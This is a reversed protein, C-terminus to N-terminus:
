RKFGIKKSIEVTFGGLETLRTTVMNIIKIEEKEIPSTLFRHWRCIQEHSAKKVEKEKPYKM